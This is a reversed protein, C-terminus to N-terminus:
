ILAIKIFCLCLQFSFFVELVDIIIDKSFNNKYLLEPPMLSNIVLCVILKPALCASCPYSVLLLDTFFPLFIFGWLLCILSLSLTKPLFFNQIASFSIMSCIFWSSLAIIFQFLYFIFLSIILCYHFFNRLISSCPNEYKSLEHFALLM